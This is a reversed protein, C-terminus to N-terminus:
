RCIAPVLVHAAMTDDRQILSAQRTLAYSTGRVHYSTGPGAGKAHCSSAWTPGCHSCVHGKKRDITAAFRDSVHGELAICGHMSIGWTRSMWPQVVEQSSFVCAHTYYVCMHDDLRTDERTTRILRRYIQM